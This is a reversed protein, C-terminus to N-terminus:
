EMVQLNPQLSMQSIIQKLPMIYAYPNNALYDIIQCEQM